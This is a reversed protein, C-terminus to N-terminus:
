GNVFGVKFIRMKPNNITVTYKVVFTSIFPEVVRINKLISYLTPINIGCIYIM